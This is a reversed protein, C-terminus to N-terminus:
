EGWQGMAVGRRSYKRSGNWETIGSFPVISSYNGNPRLILVFLPVLIHFESFEFRCCEKWVLVVKLKVADLELWRIPEHVFSQTFSLSFRLFITPVYRLWPSDRDLRSSAKEGEGSGFGTAIAYRKMKKRTRAARRLKTRRTAAIGRAHNRSSECDTGAVTRTNNNCVSGVAYSM